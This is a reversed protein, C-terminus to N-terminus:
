ANNEKKNRFIEIAEDDCDNAAIDNICVGNHNYPCDWENCKRDMTKKKREKILMIEAYVTGNM